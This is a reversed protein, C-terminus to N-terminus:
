KEKVEDKGELDSIKAKVLGEKDLTYECIVVLVNSDGHPSIKMVNKDSFEIKAEGYKSTWVGSLSPKDKNDDASASPGALIFFSCALLVGCSLTNVRMM